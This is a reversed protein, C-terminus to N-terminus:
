KGMVKKMTERLYRIIGKRKRETRIKAIRDCEGNIHRVQKPHTTVLLKGCIDCKITHEKWNDNQKKM